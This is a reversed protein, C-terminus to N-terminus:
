AADQQEASGQMLLELPNQGQGQDQPPGQPQQMQEAEMKQQDRLLKRKVKRVISPPFHNIEAYLDLWEPDPNQQVMAFLDKFADSRTKDLGSFDPAESFRFDFNALEDGKLEVVLDEDGLRLRALRDPGYTARLYDWHVGTAKGLARNKRRIFHAIPINGIKDLQAVTSAAINKSSDPTLGMDNTGQPGMLTQQVANWYAPWANDLASGQIVQVQPESRSPDSNDSFMVNYQDDRYEFRYGNVDNIGVSPMKYYIQHRMIRDFAMTLLQDSAIQAEWNLTTDSVGMPSGPRVYSTIWLIPFSRATPVPWAGDYFPEDDPLTQILPMIVLRRGKPYALVDQEQAHVDRRETMTGCMPCLGSSEPLTAGEPLEGAAIQEDQTQERYDCESNNCGIYREGDPIMREEKQRRITGPDNKRWDFLVWAHQDDTPVGPVGMNNWADLRPSGDSNTPGQRENLMQSDAVIKDTGYWKAKGKLKGMALIDDLHMLRAEQMWGCKLHHPDAFGEEWMLLNSNKWRWFTEGYEGMDPDYDLLAAGARCDIADQIVEELVDEFGKQPHGQEWEMISVATEADDPDTLKDVALAEISRPAATAQATKNRNVNSTEQGRFQQRRRDRNHSENVEYRDGDLFAREETRAEWMPRWYPLAGERRKRVEYCVGLNDHM